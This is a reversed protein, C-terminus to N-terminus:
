WKSTSTEVNAPKKFTMQPFDQQAVRVFRGATSRKPSATLNDNRQALKWTRAKKLTLDLDISDSKPVSAPNRCILLRKPPGTDFADLISSMKPNPNSQRSVQSILFDVEFNVGDLVGDFNSPVQYRAEVGMFYDQGNSDTRTEWDIYEMKVLQLGMGNHNKIPGVDSNVKFEEKFDNKQARLQVAFFVFILVLKYPISRMKVRKLNFIM